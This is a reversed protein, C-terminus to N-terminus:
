VDSTYGIKIYLFNISETSIVTEPGSRYVQLRDMNYWDIDALDVYYSDYIPFIITNIGVIWGDDPEPIPIIIGNHNNLKTYELITPYYEICTLEVQVAFVVSPMMNTNYDVLGSVDTDEIKDIKYTKLANYVNSKVETEQNLLIYYVPDVDTSNSSKYEIQEVDTSNSSKYEIQKVIGSIFMNNTIINTADIETEELNIIGTGLESLKIANSTVLNHSSKQELIIGKQASCINGSIINESSGKSVGSTRSLKICYRASMINNSSIISGKISNICIGDNGSNEIMNNTITLDKTMFNDNNQAMIGCGKNSYTFGNNKVINNSVVLRRSGTVINIGHRGNHAVINNSIITDRLKDLTIGDWNNNEVICNTVKIRTSPQDIGPTGHPDLGYGQYNMVRINDIIANDVVEYYVAFRGYSFTDNHIAPIDRIQGFKNGDLTLHRIEINAEFKSRIVGSQGGRNTERNPYKLFSDADDKLKIITNNMGEGELISNSYLYINSNIYFTGTLLKVVGKLDTPPYDNKSGCDDLSQGKLDCIAQQIEIHDDIGDCYYDADSISNSPAVIVFKKIGDGASLYRITNQVNTFINDMYINTTGSKTKERDDIGYANYGDMIEIHNYSVINYNSETKLKIGARSKCINNTVISYSVGYGYGTNSEFKICEKTDQINNESIILNYVSKGCIGAKLTTEIINGTITIDKTTYNQNNQVMIGCGGSGYNFGNNIITNKSVILRRSGTVINIGHRANNRVINNTVETDHLKDLTIGDWGNNEVINNLIKLKSSILYTGGKGHPDLGYGQCNMVRLNTMIADNVVELYVGFRGYSYIDDGPEDVPQNDKNGDITMDRIIINDQYVCRIIGSVGGRNDTNNPNKYFSTANDLLRLTTQYMGMGEFIVNTYLKINSDINYQQSVLRVTGSYSDDTVLYKEGCMEDSIKKVYCLAKQITWTDDADGGIAYVEVYTSNVTNIYDLVTTNYLNTLIRRGTANCICPTCDDSTNTIDVDDSNSNINNKRLFRQGNNDSVYSGCSLILFSYLLILSTVIKM